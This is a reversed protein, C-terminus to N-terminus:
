LERRHAAGCDRTRARHAAQKARNGCIAMSCWRRGHSRTTDLFILPCDPGECNKVLSFDEVAIVKAVAEAIPLLLSDAGRWIRQETLEFPSKHAPHTHSVGSRTDFAGVQSAILARVRNDQELIENLPRLQELSDVHLRKGRHEQVFGRFWERLERARRATADIEDLAVQTRMVSLVEAPALQAQDIWGLLGQGDSLWDVEEGTPAAISNLFDLGIAEALFIASQRVRQNGIGYM